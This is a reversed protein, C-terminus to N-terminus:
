ATGQIDKKETTGHTVTGKTNYYILFCVSVEQAKKVRQIAIFNRAKHEGRLFM